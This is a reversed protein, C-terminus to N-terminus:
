PSAENRERAELLGGLAAMRVLEGYRNVGTKSFLSKMQSRVTHVSVRHQEAIEKASLGQLMGELLRQEAPTLGYLQALMESGARPQAEPDTIFVIAAPMQRGLWPPAEVPLPAILLSWPRKGSPRDIALFGGAHQGNGNGTQCVQGIARYLKANAPATAATLLRQCVGLGDNSALAQQAAKNAHLLEGSANLLVVGAALRDLVALDAQRRLDVGHLRWFIDNARRLHPALQRYAQFEGAGFPEAGIPRYFSLYTRPTEPVSDDSIVSALLRSIDLPKLGDAFWETKMLENVPLIM